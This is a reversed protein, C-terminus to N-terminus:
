ASTRPVTARVGTLEASVDFLQRAVARDHAAAAAGVPRPAGWVEGPGGPGVFTGGPLDTVTAAFLAPLAGGEASQAFMRNGLGMITDLVSETHSQLNTAAYGPHAAMSRLRSGAAVFRRELEFAFMLNALKSQGYAPWARYRRREWNLDDLRIRGIRHMFSTLTVVRDTLRDLLLGTLAFHGLHNTGFQMEFGDATRRFPVAMVGANNILVDVPGEIGDAFARVSALDALDLAQVQVSGPLEAAAAAGKDTDRCAMIVHAGAAALRAATVLGLGSNAGTVVVRRGSQDPIEATSWAPSTM